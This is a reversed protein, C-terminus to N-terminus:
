PDVALYALELVLRPLPPVDAGLARSLRAVDEYALVLRLVFGLFYSLDLDTRELLAAVSVAEHWALLATRATDLAAGVPEWRAARERLEVQTTAGDLDQARAADITDGAVGLTGATVHIAQAQSTLGSAGCGAVLLLAVALAAHIARTM